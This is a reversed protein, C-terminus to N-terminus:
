IVHKEEIKRTMLNNHQLDYDKPYELMIICEGMDGAGAFESGIFGGGVLMISAFFLVTAIGLTSWKHELSWKLINGIAGAFKDISNEFAILISNLFSKKGVEELKSYRSALLPVITFAVLLSMFVSIVIVMAFPGIVPSVFSDSLAIPLFVVVLVLTISVVSLGIERAGDLAAQFPTKGMELHRYINELVVIADDVLVGIVLSMALLTMLNLTYGLLNMGIFSSIISIPVAIMVILSNRLSHLFFFMVIAVLIIAIFLDEEVSHAADMIM